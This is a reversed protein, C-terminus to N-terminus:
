VANFHQPLDLPSGPRGLDRHDHQGRGVVRALAFATILEATVHVDGLRNGVLVEDFGELAQPQEQGDSLDRASGISRPVGRPLVVRPGRRRARAGPDLCPLRRVPGTSKTSALSTALAEGAAEPSSDYADPSRM